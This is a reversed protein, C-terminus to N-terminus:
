ILGQERMWAGTEEANLGISTCCKYIIGRTAMFRNNDFFSDQGMLPESFFFFETFNNRAMEYQALKFYCEGLNFLSKSLEFRHKIHNINNLERYIDVTRKAAYCADEHLSLRLFCIRLMNNTYALRPMFIEPASDSLDTYIILANNFSDIASSNQSNESYCVGVNFLADGMDSSYLDKNFDYLNRLINLAQIAIDLADKHRQNRIYIISLNSLCKALEPRFDLQNQSELMRYIRLARESAEMAAEHLNMDSYRNGLNGLSRAIDPLFEQNHTQNSDCIELAERFAEVAKEFQNLKSYYVGIYNLSRALCILFVVARNIALQRYIQVAQKTAEIAEEHRNLAAYRNGLHNLVVGRMTMAAYDDGTEPIAEFHRQAVLLAFRRLYTTNWPLAEGLRSLASVSSDSVTAELAAILIQGQERTRPDPHNLLRILVALMRRAIDTGDTQELGLRFSAIFAAMGPPTETWRALATEGLLDPEIPGAARQGAAHLSSPAPYLRLLADTTARHDRDTWDPYDPDHRRLDLIQADTAGQWLTLQCAGHKLASQHSQYLTSDPTPAAARRWNEAEAALLADFLATEPIQGPQAPTLRSQVQMLAMMALTLPRDFLPASLDPVPDHPRKIKLRDAFVNSCDKFFRARSEVDDSLPPIHVPTPQLLGAAEPTKVLDSWWNEATRALLLVRIPTGHRTSLSKLTALLTKLADPRVEAYDVVLFWGRPRITNDSWVAGSAASLLSDLGADFAANDRFALSLLGGSWHRKELAKLAELALRTKGCGGPGHVLRVSVDRTLGRQNQWAWTLTQTLFGTHDDFPVVGYRAILMSAPRDQLVRDELPEFPRRLDMGQFRRLTATLSVDTLPKPAFFLQQITALTSLGTMVAGALLLFPKSQSLSQPNLEYGTFALLHNILPQNEADGLGEWLMAAGILLAFIALSLLRLSPTPEPQPRFSM